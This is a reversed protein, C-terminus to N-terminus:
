FNYASCKIRSNCDRKDLEELKKKFYCFVSCKGRVKNNEKLQEGFHM